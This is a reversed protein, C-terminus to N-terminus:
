TAKPNFQFLMEQPKDTTIIAPNKKYMSIRKLDEGTKVVGISNAAFSIAALIEWEGGMDSNKYWNFNSIIYAKRVTDPDANPQAFAQIVPAAEPGFIEGFVEQGYANREQPELEASNCLQVFQEINLSKQKILHQAILPKIKESSTVIQLMRNRSPVNGTEGFRGGGGSPNSSVAAKIEVATNGITVDGKGQISIERCLIALAHEAPGKMQQGVGFIKLHDFMAKNVSSNFTLDDVTYSGPTLLVKPNIVKDKALNDAFESREAYTLPATTLEYAIQIVMKDSYEGRLVTPLVEQVRDLVNGKNLITYIKDLLDANKKALEQDDTATDLAQVGQIIDQKAQDLSAYEFLKGEALQKQQSDHLTGMFQKVISRLDTGKGGSAVAMKFASILQPNPIAVYAEFQGKLDSGLLPKMMLANLKDLRDNKPVAGEIVNNELTTKNKKKWVEDIKKKDIKSIMALKEELTLKDFKSFISEKQNPMNREAEKAKKSLEPNNVHWVAASSPEFPEGTPGNIESRPLLPTQKDTERSDGDNTVKISNKKLLTQFERNVKMKTAEIHEPTKYYLNKFASIINHAVKERWTGKYRPNALVEQAEITIHWHRTPIILLTNYNNRVGYELDFDRYDPRGNQLSQVIQKDVYVYSFMPVNIEAKHDQGHKKNFAQQKQDLQKKNAIADPQGKFGLKKAINDVSTLYKEIAGVRDKIMKSVEPNKYLDPYDRKNKYYTDFASNIFSQTWEQLRKTIPTLEFDSSSTNNTLNGIIEQLQYAQNSTMAFYDPGDNYVPTEDTAVLGPYNDLMDDKTEFATCDAELAELPKVLSALSDIYMQLDIDKIRELEEWYKRMKIMMKSHANDAYSDDGSLNPNHGKAVPHDWKEFKSLKEVLVKFLKLNIPKDSKFWAGSGKPLAGNYRGAIIVQNFIKWERKGSGSKLVEWAKKVDDVDNETLDSLLDWTKDDLQEESQLANWLLGVIKELQPGTMFEPPQIVTKKFLRDVGNQLGQILKKEEFNNNTNVNNRVQLVLKSLENFTLKFDKVANRFVQIAKANVPSRNVNQNLDYGAQAIALAFSKQARGLYEPAQKSPATTSPQMMANVGPGDEEKIDLEKGTYKEFKAVLKKWKKDADPDSLKKYKNLNNVASALTNMSDRYNHKGYLNQLVDVLPQNDSDFRDKASQVDFDDVKDLGNILRFLAKAYDMKYKTDDYGAQMTVAYRLVSKAANNFNTHYDSGGGIRFEILNYGSEKDRMDKFHISSFKNHQIGKSLIDEIGQITKTSDPNAKLEIAKKKLNDIQNKTYSNNERGWTSLLYKDGLLVALKLENAKVSNSGQYGGQEGNWSMTVHLGTSSNTSVNEEELWTFLSKMEELMIRPTTYVPSIIEAGTGGEDDISSDTEVRWFSQNTGANSHYEGAEVQDFESNTNAWNSLMNGVEHVGEGSGQPDPDYLYIGFESLASGWSGYEYSAWDDIDKDQQARDYAQDMAEGTDRIGEKTFEEYEEFKAEETYQRGWAQLDWDEFEEKEEDELGALFEDRYDEIEEDVLNADVFDNITDEDEKVDDFMEQVIEYELDMAREGIWENYAEQIEDVPRRGEQDIIMSELDSWYYGSVWDDNEEPRDEVSTFATEAEFGCKIPLDLASQMIEKSNFNIEFLDETGQELLKNNRVLRKIKRHLHQKRQNKSLINLAKSEEVEDTADVNVVDDPKMVSYKKTAPHQVVIAEPNNGDGVPSSVVGVVQGRDDKYETGVQLDKAKVKTLTPKNTAPTSSQGTTTPSVTPKNLTPSVAPKTVASTSKAVAGTKQQTVPTAPGKTMGYEKIVTQISRLDKFKM